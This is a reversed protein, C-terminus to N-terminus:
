AWRDVLVPGKPRLTLGTTPVPRPTVAGLDGHCFPRLAASLMARALHAGLCTRPGASFPIFAWAPRGDTFRQPRFALPDPWRDPDRHTLYPSYMILTGAPVRVGDIEVSRSTIRSGLWGAPYLRLTEDIVAPVTDTYRWDPSDALHWLAWALTHATTDYGAALAIRIEEAAGPINALAATLTGAIPNAVQAEIARVLRRRVFPRPLFPHPISRHLPRLFADLLTDDVRGAFFAANLMTRVVTGSWALADFRGVPAQRLAVEALRDNLPELALRSLPPNLLARRPGHEPPDTLVIGGNLYPTLASLSGKSCFADLDRLVRRNFDPQYGVIARRWLRLEFVPGLRAGEDLLALPELGWRGLHGVLPQSRPRPFVASWRGPVAACPRTRM